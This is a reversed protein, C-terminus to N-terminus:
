TNPLLIYDVVKTKILEIDKVFFDTEIPNVRLVITNPLSVGLSLYSEMLARANDKESIDVSDELDFIIADSPFVDANQIMSPNNGPIFLLSRFM